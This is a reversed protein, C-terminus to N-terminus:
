NKRYITKICDGTGLVISDGTIKEVTIENLQDGEQVIKKKGNLELLATTGNSSNNYIIGGFKMGPWSCPVTKEKVKATGSLPKNRQKKPVKNGTQGTYHMLPKGLFPDRYNTQITFTDTKFQYGPSLNSHLTKPYGIEPPKSFMSVARFIVAGWIVFVITILLPKTKSNKTQKSM